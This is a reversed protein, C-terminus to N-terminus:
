LNRKQLRDREKAVMKTIMSNNMVLCIIEAGIITVPILLLNAEFSVASIYEEAHSIEFITVGIMTSFLLIIETLFSTTYYPKINWGKQLCHKSFYAKECGRRQMLMNFVLIMVGALIAGMILLVPTEKGKLGNEKIRFDTVENAYSADMIADYHVQYQEDSEFVDPNKLRGLPKYESNLYTRCVDYENASLYMGSYGSNKSNSNIATSMEDNIEILLAGGDYLGNTEYIAYITYEMIKGAISLSVTDGIEASTDYCFQWDVLIPNDYLMDAKEILRNENYMSIDVNEMQDSLLVTSTRSKGNVNIQTKTMYFPFIKDIGNTGSLTEVQEFSPEPVLFDVSTNKYMSQSNYLNAQKSIYPFVFLVITILAVAVSLLVTYILRHRIWYGKM